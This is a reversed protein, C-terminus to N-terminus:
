TPVGFTLFSCTRVELWLSPLLLWLCFMFYKTILVVHADVLHLM